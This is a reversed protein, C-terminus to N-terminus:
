ATISSLFAPTIASSMWSLYNLCLFIQAYVFGRTFPYTPVDPSPFEIGQRGSVSLDCLQPEGM